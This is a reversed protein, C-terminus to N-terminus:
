ELITIGDIIIDFYPASRYVSECFHGDTIAETDPTYNEDSDVDAVYSNIQEGNVTFTNTDFVYLEENILMNKVEDIKDQTGVAAVSENVETMLVSNNSLNGVWDNDITKGEKVCNIIYEFYPQWNIRTSVIFTHPCADTLSGNYFVFPVDAVECATPAGMSDAHGSIMVCGEKILNNAIEKEATEDYWSGSYEVKMTADPCVYRAGLFFSTYGSIVEAYPYAGVYGIVAENATIKGSEIMENLKMGAAVGDLFRGEYISAFANHYNGIGEKHAKTGTAHCFQVNPFEIAAQILYDEFGFSDGFVIDCGNDALEAAADYAATSEGVNTKIVGTAGTAECADKFANIFNADYPSNEDHLCIMGITVTDDAVDDSTGCACLAFVMVVAILMAIFKKM